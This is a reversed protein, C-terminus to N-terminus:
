AFNTPATKIIDKAEVTSTAYGLKRQERKIGLATVVVGELQDDIKQLVINSISNNGISVTQTKYGVYSFEIRSQNNVQISYNGNEDTIGGNATGLIVYSVGSLPKYQEDIVKGTILRQQSFTFLTCVSLVLTTLLRITVKRM